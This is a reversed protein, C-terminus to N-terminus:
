TFCIHNKENEKKLLNGCKKCKILNCVENLIKINDLIDKPFYNNIVTTNNAGFYYNHISPPKNFEFKPKYELCATEEDVKVIPFDAENDSERSIYEANEDDGEKAIEPQRPAEDVHQVEEAIHVENDKM